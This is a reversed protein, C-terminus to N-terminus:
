IIIYFAYKTFLALLCINHESFNVGGLFFKV